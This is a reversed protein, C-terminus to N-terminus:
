DLKKQDLGESLETNEITYYGMSAAYSPMGLAQALADQIDEGQLYEAGEVDLNSQEVLSFIRTLEGAAEQREFARCLKKFDGGKPAPDDGESDFLPPFSNYTDLLKGKDYLWYM